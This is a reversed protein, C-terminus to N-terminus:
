GSNSNEGENKVSLLLPIQIAIPQNEKEHQNYVIRKMQIFMKFDVNHTEVELGHCESGIRTKILIDAQDKWHTLFCMNFAGLKVAM